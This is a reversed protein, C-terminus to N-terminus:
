FIKKTKSTKVIKGGNGIFTHVQLHSSYFLYAVSCVKRSAEPLIVAAIKGNSKYNSSYAIAEAGVAFASGTQQVCITVKMRHANIKQYSGWGKVASSASPVTFSGSNSHAATTSASAPLACFGLMAVAAVATSIRRMM